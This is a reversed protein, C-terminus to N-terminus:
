LLNNKQAIRTYEDSSYVNHNHYYLQNDRAQRVTTIIYQRGQPSELASHLYYFQEGAHKEETSESANIFNSRAIIDPLHKVALLKSAQASKNAIEKRGKSGFIIDQEDAADAFGREMRIEGLMASHAPHGQLTQRYYAIAKARLDTIDTYAFEEGTLRVVALNEQRLHEM